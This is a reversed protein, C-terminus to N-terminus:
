AYRVTTRVASRRRMALGVFAFGTLMFAWTSPEPVAGAGGGQINLTLSDDAWNWVYTGPNLGLSAITANNWVTLGAVTAASDAYGGPIIIQGTAGSVGASSGSTSSAATFGGSGFSTPGSVPGYYDGYTDISGAGFYGAAPNIGVQLPMAFGQFSLPQFHWTGSGAAVVDSGSQTIDIVYAAHAPAAAGLLGLM